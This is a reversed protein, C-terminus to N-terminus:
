EGDEPIKVFLATEEETSGFWEIKGDDGVALTGALGEEEDSKTMNGDEDYLYVYSIGDNYFIKEGDFEGTAEWAAGESASSPWNIGIQYTDGELPTLTMTARMSVEDQYDGSLNALATEEEAPASNGCACLAFVMVLTLIAVLIKKM